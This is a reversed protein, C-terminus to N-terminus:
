QYFNGTRFEIRVGAWFNLNFPQPSGRTPVAGASLMIANVQEAPSYNTTTQAELPSAKKWSVALQGSSIWPTHFKPTASRLVPKVGNFPAWVHTRASIGSAGLAWFFPSLIPLSYFFYPRSQPEGSTYQTLFNGCNVILLWGIICGIGIIPLRMSSVGRM